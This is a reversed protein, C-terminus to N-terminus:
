QTRAALISADRRETEPRKHMNEMGDMSVRFDWRCISRLYNLFHAWETLEPLYNGRLYDWAHKAAFQWLASAADVPVVQDRMEILNYFSHYYENRRGGPLYPLLDNIGMITPLEHATTRDFILFRWTGGTVSNFTPGLISRSATKIAQWVKLANVTTHNKNVLM